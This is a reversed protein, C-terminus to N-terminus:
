SVLPIGFPTLGHANASIAERASKMLKTISDSFAMYEREDAEVKFTSELHQLLRRRMNRLMSRAGLSGRLQSFTQECDDKTCIFITDDWSNVALADYIRISWGNILVIWPANVEPHIAYLHVQLLEGLVM